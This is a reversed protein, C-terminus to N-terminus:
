CVQNNRVGKHYDRINNFTTDLLTNISEQTNYAIHPTIIVNPMGLLKQTILASSVCNTKADRIEEIINEPSLALYECELVDLAAGKIKGSLLNEYLAVIDILEGRATNIFYSGDKMKAFENKGIIHYNETSYPIHLSVIDSNELLEDLSVYEVFSDADKCKVLSHVLVKM